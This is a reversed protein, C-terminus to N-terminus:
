SLPGLARLMREDQDPTPNSRTLLKEGLFISNAGAFFALAQAELSLGERGASLRIRARPILLRTVAILRILELPDVPTSDALPTGPVPILLNIPVSEPQPELAALEAVLALRDDVSEGMGLIGGCCVSIGARAVRKLTELRDDYRRTQIISPYYERSTDLNHNYADLGAAKLRTAQSESLMGLTVCAEMGAKKVEGIMELVQDFQPGDKPNRWAAGMCFREAGRAKAAAIAQKAQAIPVFPEQVLGTRHHASQPCYACDEPCGGTKISLLTCRQIKAPDHHRRHEEHADRLLDFFPKVYHARAIANWNM